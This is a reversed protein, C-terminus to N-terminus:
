LDSLSIFFKSTKILSNLPELEDIDKKRVGAKKKKRRDREVLV